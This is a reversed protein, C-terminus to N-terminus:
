WITVWSNGSQVAPRWTDWKASPLSRQRRGASPLSAANGSNKRNEELERCKVFCFIYVCIGATGSACIM